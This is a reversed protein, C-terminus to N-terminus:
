NVTTRDISVVSAANVDTWTTATKSVFWEKFASICSVHVIATSDFLWLEKHKTQLV